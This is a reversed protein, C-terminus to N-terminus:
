FSAVPLPLDSVVMRHRRVAAGREFLKILLSADEGTLALRNIKRLWKVSHYIFLERANASFERRKQPHKSQHRAWRDAAQEIEEFDVTKCSELNLFEIVRLLYQATDRIFQRSCGRDIHSQLYEIRENLFPANLHRNVYHPRKFLQNFM